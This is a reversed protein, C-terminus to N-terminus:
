ILGKKGIDTRYHVGEWSIKEVAKYTKDIANKLTKGMATVALVRGGNTVFNEGESRTGAHFVIVDKMSEILELGSILKGTEYSGPYGQATMVVCISSQSLFEVKFKELNEDLVADILDIVDTKMRMLITEAEPDGFRCNFEVVRPDGHNIMLGVYLIGRYPRDEGRMGKLFPKIIREIVREHVEPTVVPAPSYAGMGGTNPGEDNDFIRKHDQSTALPVFHEGDTAVMFTAEEGEMFDEFVIKRGAEGFKEYVLMEDVAKLAEHLNQVIIVGKGAALGDAKIVLPYRAEKKLYKKAETTNNFFVFPATPIGHRACFEKAFCKSAEIVAANKRPGFIKLGEKEFEDVIGLTLPAEPGVVTLDINKKKAFEVIERVNQPAIIVCEALQDMGSNGPICFIKKVRPSQSLKWVLAHERGGSGIVLIKM